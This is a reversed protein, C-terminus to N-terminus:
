IIQKNIERKLKLQQRKAEIMEPNDRAEDPKIDFGKKLLHLVYRDDLNTSIKRYHERARAKYRDINKARTRDNIRKVKQPNRQAWEKNTKKCKVKFDHDTRRKSNMWMRNKERQRYLLCKKCPQKLQKKQDARRYFNDDNFALEDGCLNCHVIDGEKNKPM